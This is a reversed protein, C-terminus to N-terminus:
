GSVSVYNLHHEFLGEVFERVLGRNEADALYTWGYSDPLYESVDVDEVKIKLPLITDKKSATVPIIQLDGSYDGPTVGKVSVWIQREEGPPVTLLNLNSSPMLADPILRGDGSRVFIPFFINIGEYEINLKVFVELTEDTLNAVMLTHNETQNKLVRISISDSVNQIRNFDIRPVYNTFEPVEWVYYGAEKSLIKNKKKNLLYFVDALEKFKGKAEAYQTENMNESLGEKLKNYGAILKETEKVEDGAKMGDIEKRLGQADNIANEIDKLLAVKFSGFVVESFSGPSAFSGYTPIWCSLEGSRKEERCFNGLWRDGTVPKEDSLAALPISIEVAWFNKSFSVRTDWKPNWGYFDDGLADYAAGSASVILHSYGARDAAPNFFMEVCDDDWVPGDHEAVEKRVENMRDEFCTFGMYLNENDALLYLETKNKPIGDKYDKFDNIGGATKWVEEDFKGDIKIKAKEVIPVLVAPFMEAKGVGTNKHSSIEFSGINITTPKGNKNVMPVYEWDKEGKRYIELYANYVGLPADDSIDFQFSISFKQGTESKADPGYIPDKAIRGAADGERSINASILWDRDTKELLTLVGSLVFQEGTLIKDSYTLDTIEIKGIGAGYLPMSLFSVFLFVVLAKPSMNSRFGGVQRLIIM